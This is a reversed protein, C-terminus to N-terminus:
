EVNKDDKNDKDDKLIGLKRFFVTIGGDFLDDDYNFVSDDKKSSQSKSAM